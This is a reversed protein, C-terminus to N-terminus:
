ASLRAEIRQYLTNWALSAAAPVQGNGIAKLRDARKPIGVSVRPVGPWESHWVGRIAAVRIWDKEECTSREWVEEPTDSPNRLPQSGLAERLRRLFAPSEEAESEGGELPTRHPLQRLPNSHEGAHQEGPGSGQSASTAEGGVRMSRVSGEPVEEGSPQLEEAQSEHECLKPFLISPAQVRGHGGTQQRVVQADDDNRLQRVEKTDSNESEHKSGMLWSLYEITRMPELSTWNRPWNMLYEVFEPNLQGGDLAMVAHDLRDNSRDAGGKRTLSAPSSGKHMTAVPTPWMKVAQILNVSHM